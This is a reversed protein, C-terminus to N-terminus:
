EKAGDGNGCKMAVPSFSTHWLSLVPVWQRSKETHYKYQLSANYEAAQVLRYVWSARCTESLVPRCCETRFLVQSSGEREGM